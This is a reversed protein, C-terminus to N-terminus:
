AHKMNSRVHNLNLGATDVQIGLMRYTDGIVM